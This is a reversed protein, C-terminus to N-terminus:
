RLEAIEKLLAPAPSMQLLTNFHQLHQATIAVKEVVLYVLM